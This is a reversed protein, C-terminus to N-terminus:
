GSRSLAFPSQGRIIIIIIIIIIILCTLFYTLSVEVLFAIIQDSVDSYVSYLHHVVCKTWQFAGKTFTQRSYQTMVTALNDLQPSESQCVQIIMMMMMMM